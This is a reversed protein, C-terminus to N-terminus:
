NHATSKELAERTKREHYRQREAAKVQEWKKHRAENNRACVEDKHAQYWQRAYANARLRLAELKQVATQEDM